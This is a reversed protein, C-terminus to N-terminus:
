HGALEHLGRGVLAGGHCILEADLGAEERAHELLTRATEQALVSYPPSSGRWPLEDGEYIHALTLESDPHLLLKALALADRGGEAGDIGVIVHDFM